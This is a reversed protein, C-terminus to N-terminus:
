CLNLKVTGLVEYKIFLLKILRPHQRRQWCCGVGDLKVRLDDPRINLTVM